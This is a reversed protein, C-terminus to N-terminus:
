DDATGKIYMAGPALYVAKLTNAAKCLVQTWNGAGIQHSVVMRLELSSFEMGEEPRQLCWVYVTCVFNLLGSIDLFHLTEFWMVVLFALM